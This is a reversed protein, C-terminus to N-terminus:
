AVEEGLLDLIFRRQEESPEVSKGRADIALICVNGVILPPCANLADWAIEKSREMWQNLRLYIAKWNVRNEWGGKLLGEDDVFMALDKRLPVVDFLKYDGERYVTNLDGDYQVERVKGDHSVCIM